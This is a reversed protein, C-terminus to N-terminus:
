QLNSHVFLALFVIVGLAYILNTTSTSFKPCRNITDDQGIFRDNEWRGEQLNSNADTYKGKGLRKGFAWDGVYVAGDKWTYAGHGHQKENLFEGVYINGCSFEKTGKGYYRYSVWNYEYRFENIM